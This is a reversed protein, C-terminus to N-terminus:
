SIIRAKKDCELKAEAERDKIYNTIEKTMTEKVKEMVKARAEEKSIGSIENM